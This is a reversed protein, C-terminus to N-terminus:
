EDDFDSDINEILEGKEALTEGRGGKVRVANQEEEFIKKITAYQQYIKLSNARMRDLETATGKEVLPRGMVFILKGSDDKVNKDFTYDTEVIAKARKVMSKEEELFAKAVPSLCKEKYFEICEETFPDKYDFKPDFFKIAELKEEDSLRNLKNHFSPDAFQWISWMRVSSDNKNKSKDKDYLKKFPLVFSMQFNSMWFNVQVDLPHKVEFLTYSM